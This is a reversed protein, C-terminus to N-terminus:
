NAAYKALTAARGATSAANFASPKFYDGPGPQVAPAVSSVTKGSQIRLEYEGMAQTTLMMGYVAATVHEWAKDLAVGKLLNVLLLGRALDGVGVPQRGGFDVLPRSIHWADDATVLLM